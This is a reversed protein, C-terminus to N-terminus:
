MRSLFPIGLLFFGNKLVQLIAGSLHIRTKVLDKSENHLVPNDHYYRSFTKCIEYLHATIFSSNLDAGARNVIGPYEALLKILEREEPVTLLRSDVKGGSYSEKREEYKRLMSSIRAGMYQLYPGTNGNFSISEAPNFIMDKTPSVQLLYYNLAGLAIKASTAELNAVEEERGKSKIEEKAMGTLEAVLDDADVVTGERSKMKGEPLNVMGYSLHHLNKAWPFGLRSLVEFLVKFHYQQESAVVYILREFPWDDHRAVATGIDQTLYLTTGDGRLLVKKDLKVDNLDIWISGDEESYFIGKELGEHVLERGMFYTESELYEKDFSIGTKKYTEEIGEITWRNMTKWLETVEPDGSEWLRLMERAQEEASPDEKSWKDFKVYFSGVFHDGKKGSSEPTVGEGFKKYALMSKCIHIGRDNILNVKRIRAGNAFLIRSLSEGITDNRLHGLHLPKNTNPCSFEVVIKKGSLSTNRGFEEGEEHIQKLLDEAVEGMDVTVNIYPGAATSYSGLKAAVQKAIEGPSIKFFRAYPFMPFALDGMEPKPPKEILLDDEEVSFDIDRDAALAKLAGTIKKKWNQQHTRMHDM